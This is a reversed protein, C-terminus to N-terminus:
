VILLLWEAERRANEIGRQALYDTSRRLLNMLTPADDMSLGYALSAVRLLLPTSSYM